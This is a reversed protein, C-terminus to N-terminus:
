KITKKKNVEMWPPSNNTTVDVYEIAMMTMESGTHAVFKTLHPKQQANLFGDWGCSAFYFVQLNQNLYVLNFISLKCYVLDWNIYM